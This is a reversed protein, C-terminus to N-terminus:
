LRSHKRKKGEKEDFRKLDKYMVGCDDCVLYEELIWSHYGPGFVGNSNTKVINTKNTSKCVPCQINNFREGEIRQEEELRKAAEEKDQQMRANVANWDIPIAKLDKLMESLPSNKDTTM